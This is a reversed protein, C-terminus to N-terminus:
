REIYVGKKIIILFLGAEDLKKAFLDELNTM